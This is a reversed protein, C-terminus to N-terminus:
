AAMPKMWEPTIFPPIYDHHGMHDLVYSRPAPAKHHWTYYAEHLHSLFLKVAYRKARAHLHGQVLKGSKLREIVDKDTFKFKTLLAAAQDAYRGLENQQEEYLKRQKYVKGYNQGEANSIKVFSEGIKWCLTKLEANWPRVEGKKWEKGPVLGAYSWIQGAYKAVEIDIYALLGSAIVPGIGKNERAWAGVPHNASYVDLSVKVMDELTRAQDFMFGIVTSPEGSDMMKTVRNGERIRNRQMTYYSDVLFRVEHRSLNKAAERLDKSLRKTLSHFESDDYDSTKNSQVIHM